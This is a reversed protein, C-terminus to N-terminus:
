SVYLGHTSLLQWRGDRRVLYHLASGGDFMAFMGREILVAGQQDDTLQPMSVWLIRARYPRRDPVNRAMAVAQRGYAIGLKSLKKRISPCSRVANTAGAEAVKRTVEPSPTVARSAKETRVDGWDGNPLGPFLEVPDTSLVIPRDRPRALETEIYAWAADCAAANPLARPDSLVLAAAVGVIMPAHHM